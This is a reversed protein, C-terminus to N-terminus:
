EGMKFSIAMGDGIPIISTLYNKNNMLLDIYKRLNRVINIKRRKVLDDEAVMGKYLVNDSILVGETSLIRNFHHIFEIYRAKAGDLFIMDYKSDLFNVIELADGEILNVKKSVNFENFNARALDIMEESKEITDIRGEESVIKSLLISSYGIATGIELIRRPKVLKGMLLLLSECELSIIPIHNCSAFERLKKMDEYVNAKSKLYKNIYEYSIMQM